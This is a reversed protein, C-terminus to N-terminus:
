WTVVHDSAFILELLRPYALDEPVRHVAVGAPLEPRQAGELLAVTVRDGAAVQRAIVTVALEAGAAGKLLHLASAM